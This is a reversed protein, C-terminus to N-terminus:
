RGIETKSSSNHPQLVYMNMRLMVVYTRWNFFLQGELEDLFLEGYIQFYAKKFIDDILSFQLPSNPYLIVQLTVGYATVFVMLIIIFYAMDVM